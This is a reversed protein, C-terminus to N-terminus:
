SAIQAAVDSFAIGAAGVFSLVSLFINWGIIRLKLHRSFAVACDHPGPACQGHLAAIKRDQGSSLRVGVVFFVLSLLLGIALYRPIPASLKGVVLLTLYFSLYSLQHRGLCENVLKLANHTRPNHHQM